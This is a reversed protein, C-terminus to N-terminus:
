FEGLKAYTSYFIISKNNTRYIPHTRWFSVKESM